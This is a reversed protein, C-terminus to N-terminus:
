LSVDAKNWYAQCPHQPRYTAAREGASRVANRSPSESVHTWQRLCETCLKPTTKGGLSLQINDQVQESSTYLAASIEDCLDPWM